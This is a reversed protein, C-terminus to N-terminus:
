VELLFTVTNRRFGLSKEFYKFCSGCLRTTTAKIGALHHAKAWDVLFNKCDKGLGCGNDAPICHLLGYDGSQELCAFGVLGRENRALVVVGKTFCRLLLQLLDETEILPKDV